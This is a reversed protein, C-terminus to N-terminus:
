ATGGVGERHGDVAVQGEFWVFLERHREAFTLPAVTVSLWPAPVMVFSSSAGGTTDVTTMLWTYPPPPLAPAVNVCSKMSSKLRPVDLTLRAPQDTCYMLAVPVPVHATVGSLPDM